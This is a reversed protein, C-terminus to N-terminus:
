VNFGPCQYEMKQKGSSRNRLVAIYERDLPAVTEKNDSSSAGEVVIEVNGRIVRDLDEVFWTQSCIDLVSSGCVM